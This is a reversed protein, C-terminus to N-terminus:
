NSKHFVNKLQVGLMGGVASLLGGKLSYIFILALASMKAWPAMFELVPLAIMALLVGLLADGLLGGLFGAAAGRGAGGGAIFGAVVGAVIEGVLPIFDVVSHLAACVLVALVFSGKSTKM